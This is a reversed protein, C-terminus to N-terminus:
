GCSAIRLKVCSCLVKMMDIDVVDVRKKNSDSEVIWFGRASHAILNDFAVRDASAQVVFVGDIWTGRVALSPVRNLLLGDEYTVGAAAM